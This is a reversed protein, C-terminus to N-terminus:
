KRKAIFNEATRHISAFGHKGLYEEIGYWNGDTEICLLNCGLADLNISRLIDFSSGETDISIFNAQIGLASIIKNIPIAPVYIEQFTAANKWVDYNKEVSTGVADASAYFKTLVDSDPTALANVLKVKSVGAYAKMLGVFCEPSPEILVGSWGREFLARTNSFVTASFAGCDLFNGNAPAHKLIVEEEDRQTYSM